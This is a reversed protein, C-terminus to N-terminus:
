RRRSERAWQQPDTDPVILFGKRRCRQLTKRISNEKAELEQALAEVTRPGRALALKLRHVLGTGAVTQPAADALDFASVTIADERPSFLLRFPDPKRPLNNAKKCTFVIATADDLDHDRRAEWILRPGNFAFAGGFPRAPTGSRADNNTIHNLVLSAAPAFLRLANYFGVIPEHFAAGEGGAVAFMKSDIVVFRIGHRAFDAALATAEDVLPRKMRKYLIAPPDIELGAAILALRGEATEQDTEWDLFASPVARSPTLGCPLATGTQVAAALTLAVLSKGTDGDAYLLTPNGEYLFRPVLAATPSPPRGTLAVLPDGERAAQTMTYAAEDLYGSWPVDPVLAELKKRLTERAATSALAVAGWSLRRSEHTITLEGRVGDRGDRISTLAIQPGGNPWSLRLDLGERSLIPRQEPNAAQGLNILANRM